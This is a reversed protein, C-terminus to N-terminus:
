QAPDIRYIAGNGESIFWVSGDPAERVDRVRQTEPWDLREVEVLGDGQRELRSIMDFKLSGVLFDGRWEKMAPDKLIALGSPAISPDWYHVPQEMGPKRNGEGIKQGSYHRGYSIVPWGFNAGKRIRNVEDGGQAGHEVAWLQGSADLAAGQPNRHGYSWIEPQAGAQGVFPNGSPATGDRAIRLVSGQVRGLDQAAPRDGREGITIFITGDPAEVLRSGFHRGGKSGPAMEFIQDFGTLQRGDESLRGRGIATGAERGQPVSHSLYVERSMAFDRPVLVDLLGGQGKDRVDPTGGVVQRTGDATFHLLAGERETVLFGGEPLFAVAWPTDLGEAVPTVEVPGLTTQRPAATVEFALLSLLLISLIRM